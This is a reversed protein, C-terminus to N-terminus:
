VNGNIMKDALKEPSLGVYDYLECPTDPSAFNDDIAAIIYECSSMDFGLKILEERLLMAAGGSKIGEECFVIRRAGKIYPLISRAVIPYPKLVELLVTGVRARTNEKM